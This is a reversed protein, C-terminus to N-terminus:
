KKDDKGGLGVQGVLMKGSEKIHEGISSFSESVAEKLNKYLNTEKEQSM